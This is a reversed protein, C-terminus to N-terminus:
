RSRAKEHKSNKEGGMRYCEYTRGIGEVLSTGAKWGMASLRSVDLLKQSVGEPKSTDFVVKGDYGVVKRIIDVLEKISVDEGTGINIIKSDNYNQMLFICADAVDDVYVFERRQNGSSWVTASSQKHVKAEHFKRILAPIVHSDEPHFNDNPGYTNAPVACIFNTGYQQNYAQCMKIGCIKSIAYAENTPELCGSLLYEEKIPQPSERPYSCASGFFLLKKVGARFSSDIVNTQISLNDYLFQAPYKINARIGGVMAAALIVFMPKEKQFFAEVDSQRVLDLEERTRVIINKYGEKRYRAFLASGILGTHGAIYIKADRM